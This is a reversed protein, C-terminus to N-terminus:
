KITDQRAERSIEWINNNSDHPSVIAYDYGFLVHVIPYMHAHIYVPTHADM